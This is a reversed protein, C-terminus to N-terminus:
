PNVGRNGHGTMSEEPSSEPLDLPLQEEVYDTLFADIKNVISLLRVSDHIVMGSSLRASASNVLETRSADLLRNIMNVAESEVNVIVPPPELPFERPHTEPLDLPSPQSTIWDHLRRLSSTYTRMRIIDHSIMGSIGTSQSRNAEKSFRDLMDVVMLVDHNFVTTPEAM